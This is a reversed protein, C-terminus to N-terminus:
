PRSESVEVPPSETVTQAGQAATPTESITTPAAPLVSLDSSPQASGAPSHALAAAPSRLQLPQVPAPVEDTTLELIESETFAPEPCPPARRASQAVTRLESQLMLRQSELLDIQRNGFAVEHRLHNNDTQAKNIALRCQPCCGTGSCARGAICMLHQYLEAMRQEEAFREVARKHLHQLTTMLRQQEPNLSNLKSVAYPSSRPDRTASPVRLHHM